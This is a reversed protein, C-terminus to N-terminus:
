LPAQWGYLHHQQIYAFVAPPLMTAGSGRGLGERIASSSVPLQVDALFEV